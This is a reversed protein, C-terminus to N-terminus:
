GTTVDIREKELKFENETGMTCVFKLGMNKVRTMRLWAFSRECPEADCLTILTVPAEITLNRAGSPIVVAGRM